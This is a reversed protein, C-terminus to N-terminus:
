VLVEAALIVRDRGAAKARYLAEDAARVLEETTRAHEPYLAAGMSATIDGLTQGRHTVNLHQAALRLEEARKYTDGLSADPLILIFEEGGFRCAIDEKRTRTRLLSGFDRLLADGADHGFTDNFRKFHDIDIMVAGVSKRNREARRLERELSEEM